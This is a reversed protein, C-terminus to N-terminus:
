FLVHYWVIVFVSPQLTTISFCFGIPLADAGADAGAGAGADAGADADADAGSDADAGADADNTLPQPAHAITVEM